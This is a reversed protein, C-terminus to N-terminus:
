QEAQKELFGEIQEFSFKFNALGLSSESGRMPWPYRNLTVWVVVAVAMDELGAFTLSIVAMNFHSVTFIFCLVFVLQVHVSFSVM